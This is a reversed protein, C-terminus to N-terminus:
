RLDNSRYRSRFSGTLATIEISRDHITRKSCSYRIGCTKKAGNRIPSISTSRAQYATLVDASAGVHTEGKDLAESPINLDLLLHELFRIEIDPSFVGLVHFGFTATFEFGPLILIKEFLRRYEGLRRQEEPTIRKLEDLWNLREIEEAMERYGRVTNHDTFAMIQLGM